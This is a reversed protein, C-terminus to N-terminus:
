PVQGSVIIFLLFFINLIVAAASKIASTNRKPIVGTPSMGSPNMLMVTSQTGTIMPVIVKPRLLPSTRPKQKPVALVILMCGAGGRREEQAFIYEAKRKAM